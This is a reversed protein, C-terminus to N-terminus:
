VQLFIATRMIVVVGATPATRTSAATDEASEPQKHRSRWSRSTCTSGRWSRSGSRSCRSSCGSCWSSSWLLHLALHLQRKWLSFALAFVDTSPGTAGPEGQCGAGPLFQEPAAYAPTFLQRVVGERQPGDVMGVVKAGGFDILKCASGDIAANALMFANGPKIDGVLSVQPM